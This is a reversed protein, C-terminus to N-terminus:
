WNHMHLRVPNVQYGQLHLALIVTLGASVRLASGAVMVLQHAPLEATSGRQACARLM